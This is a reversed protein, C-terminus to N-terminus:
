VSRQKGAKILLIFMISNATTFILTYYLWEIPFISTFTPGMTTKSSSMMSLEAFFYLLAIIQWFFLLILSIIRGKKKISLLLISVPISPVIYMLSYYFFFRSSYPTSYEWYILWIGVAAVLLLYIGPIIMYLNPTKWLSKPFVPNKSQM